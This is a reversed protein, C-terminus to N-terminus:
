AGDIPPRYDAAGWHRIAGSRPASGNGIRYHRALATLAMTLVVKASRQPWGAERELQELGKLHCCVELLVRAMEPGVEHLAGNVRERAALAGDSLEVNRHAGNAGSGGGFGSWNATIRPALQGREFDARLREGADFQAETILATGNRDRRNRLWTLPSEAVNEVPRAPRSSEAADGGGGGGIPPRGPHGGGGWLRLAGPPPGGGGVA